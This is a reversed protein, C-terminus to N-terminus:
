GGYMRTRVRMVSDLEDAFADAEDDALRSATIRIGPPSALRFPEGAAVWWGRAQLAAVVPAEKPVQVWVNFGSRSSSHIGRTALRDVLSIRRADYIRRAQRIRDLTPRDNLLMSTVRQLIHSVWGTGAVHRGDVRALTEEDAAVFGTRLDPGLVMSFSRVFAWRAQRPDIVSSLPESAVMGGTDDEIVLLEPHHRLIARLQRSRQTDILAGTPNQARSTIVIAEVTGELVQEVSSPVPGTEDIEIPVSRLGRIALLDFLPPFTPDEVAVRDGPSLHADLVQGIGDVAGGTVAIRDAPVGDSRLQALVVEELEPLKRPEGYMASREGARALMPGLRPLLDPDPNGDVLNHQDAPPITPSWGTAIPPRDAVTTGRRGDTRILGRLRLTRYADAVTVTSVKLTGALGRITPLPEGPPLKGERVMAEISAAISASTSGTIRRSSVGSM